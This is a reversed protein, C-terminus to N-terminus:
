PHTFSDQPLYLAGKQGCASISASMALIFAVKIM